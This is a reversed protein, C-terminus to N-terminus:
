NKRCLFREFRLHLKFVGARREDSSLSSIPYDSRRNQGHYRSEQHCVPVILSASLRALSRTMTAALTVPRGNLLTGLSISVMLSFDCAIMDKEFPTACPINRFYARWEPTSTPPEPLFFNPPVLSATQPFGATSHCSMCSSTNLDVPGDMRMGWGLHQPPLNPSPNIRTEKLDPNIMTRTPPYAGIINKTYTPDNGWMAGLPVLNYWLSSSKVAGNYCFTM